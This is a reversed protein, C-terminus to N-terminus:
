RLYVLVATLYALVATTAFGAGTLAPLWAFRNSRRTSPNDSLCSMAFGVRRVFEHDIKNDTSAM